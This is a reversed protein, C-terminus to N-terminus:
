DARTTTIQAIQCVDRPRPGNSVRHGHPPRDLASTIALLLLYLPSSWMSPRRTLGLPRRRSERAPVPRQDGCARGTVHMFRDVHIVGSGKVWPVRMERVFGVVHSAGIRSVAHSTISSLRM